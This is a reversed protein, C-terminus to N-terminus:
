FNESFFCYFCSLQYFSILYGFMGIIERRLTLGFKALRERPMEEIESASNQYQVMFVFDDAYWVMAAQSWLSELSDTYNKVNYAHLKLASESDGSNLFYNAIDFNTRALQPNGALDKQMTDILPRVNEIDKADIYSYIM